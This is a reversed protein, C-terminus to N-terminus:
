KVTTLTTSFTGSMTYFNSAYPPNLRNFHTFQSPYLVCKGISPKIRKSQWLFELEGGFCNSNNSLFVLWSVINNSNKSSCNDCEWNHKGGRYDIRNIFIENMKLDCNIDKFYKKKYEYLNHKLLSLIHNRLEFKLPLSLFNSTIRHLEKDVHSPIFIDSILNKKVCSDFTNEFYDILKSCSIKDLFNEYEEIFFNEIKGIYNNKTKNKHISKKM